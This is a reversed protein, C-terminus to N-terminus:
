GPPQIWVMLTNSATGRYPKLFGDIRALGHVPHNRRRKNGIRRKEVTVM